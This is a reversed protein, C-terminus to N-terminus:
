YFDQFFQGFQDLIRADLILVEWTDKETRILRGIAQKFVLGCLFHYVFQPHQRRYVPKNNQYHIWPRPPLFPLKWLLVLSLNDGAIDVGEMYSKSGVLVTRPNDILAKIKQQNGKTNVTWSEHKLVM